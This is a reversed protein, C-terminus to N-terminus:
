DTANAHFSVSGGSTLVFVALLLAAAVGVIGLILPTRNPGAPGPGPGASPM